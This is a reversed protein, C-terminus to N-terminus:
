SRKKMVLYRPLPPLMEVEQPLGFMLRLTGDFIIGTTFDWQNQELVYVPDKKQFSGKGNRDTMM